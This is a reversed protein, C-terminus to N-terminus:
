LAAVVFLPLAPLVLPALLVRPVQADPVLMDSIASVVPETIEALELAGLCGVGVCVGVAAAPIGVATGGVAVGVSKIAFVAVTGAVASATLKEGTNMKKGGYPCFHGSNDTLEM